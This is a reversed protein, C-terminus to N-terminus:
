TICYSHTLFLLPIIPLYQRELLLNCFSFAFHLGGRGRSGLNLVRHSSPVLLDGDVLGCVGCCHLKLERFSNTSSLNARVRLQHARLGM